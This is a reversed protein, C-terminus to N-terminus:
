PCSNQSRLQWGKPPRHPRSRECPARCCAARATAATSSDPGGGGLQCRRPTARVRLGASTSSSM